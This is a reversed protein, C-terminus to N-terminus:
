LSPESHLMVLKRNRRKQRQLTFFGDQILGSDGSELELPIVQEIQFSKGRASIWDLLIWTGCKVISGKSGMGHLSTACLRITDMEVM